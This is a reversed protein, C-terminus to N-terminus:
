KKYVIKDGVAIAKQQWKPLIDGVFLTEDGSRDIDRLKIKTVFEGDRLVILDLQPLMNGQFTQTVNMLEQEFEKELKLVVFGLEENVAVISGKEGPTSVIADTQIMRTTLDLTDAEVEKPQKPGGGGGSQILGELEANRAQLRKNEELLKDVKFQLTDREEEVIRKEAELDAIQGELTTIQESLLSIKNRLDTITANLQTIQSNLENITGQRTRATVKVENHKEIIKELYQRTAQLQTRTATLIQYQATAKDLLESMVGDTTGEGTSYPAGTMDNKIIKNDIPSRRYYNRLHRLTQSDELSLLAQDMSELEVKYRTWFDDPEPEGEPDFVDAMDQEPREQGVAPAEAQEAEITRAIKRAYDELTKNRGVLIERKGFLMVGFTLAGAAFILNFVTLVRLFKGM